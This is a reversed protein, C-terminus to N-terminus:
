SSFGRGSGEAEAAAAPLSRSNRASM